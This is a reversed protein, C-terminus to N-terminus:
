VSIFDRVPLHKESLPKKKAKEKRKKKQVLNVVEKQIHSDMILTQRIERPKKIKNEVVPYITVHIGGQKRKASCIDVHAM